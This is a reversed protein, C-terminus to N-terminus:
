LGFRGEWRPEDGFREPSFFRPEFATVPEGFLMQAVGLGISPALKFGHGSFGTVVTLGKLGPVPGIMAQADPTLTYWAALGGAEARDEYDLLRASLAKRSWAFTEESVEEDLADPDELASDHDYDTRGVRTRKTQLECRCYFGHELDILVPHVGRHMVATQASSGHEFPDDEIDFGLSKEGEVTEEEVVDELENLAFFVNEPRVVKLPLEIGHRALLRGTWAGAVLVVEEASYDGETTRAGVVRDGEILLEEVGVGLRTSAGSSRALSAFAELTRAPDVSGGDPEWAGVSGAKVRIGPFLERMRAPDVLEVAIGLDKSMEVNAELREKWEPENPSALTLVGTREFGISRGSRSEFSAYARLSDRAMVALAQDGYHQRLIGGSRSSAGAGITARELLVVPERLPDTRRASEIAISTGMIGGGVILIKSKM